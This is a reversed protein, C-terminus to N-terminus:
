NFIELLSAIRGSVKITGNTPSTVRSLLKLLISKGTFNRGIIGVTNGQQIEFSMNNFSLIIDSTGKLSRDNAEGITLFPYEKGRAKAIWGELDRSPTGTGITNLQYAKSLSEIKIAVSM